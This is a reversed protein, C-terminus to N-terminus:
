WIRAKSSRGKKAHTGEESQPRKKPKKARAAMRLAWAAGVLGKFMYDIASFMQQFIVDTFPIFVPMMAFLVVFGLLVKLPIGVVFVNMQPTTRVIFGLLMEGLLGSAMMPIAVNVALLFALVFVELAAVGLQASLVVGGAPVYDFTQILIYILKQHGNTIFFCMMLAVYLFNGSVPVSINNQVDFINVMGFGMQMDIMHGATQVISFFLTTVYGLVMGFLFEKVCLLAYGIAGNVVVSAVQADALFVIYTIALCLGIKAFSPINSRGFIPSAIILATIRIFILIFADLNHLIDNIIADM